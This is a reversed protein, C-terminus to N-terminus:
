RPEADARYHLASAPLCRSGGAQCLALSLSATKCHEFRLCLQLFQLSYQGTTPCVTDLGKAEEAARHALGWSM